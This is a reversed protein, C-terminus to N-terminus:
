RKISGKTDGNWSVFSFFLVFWFLPIVVLKYPFRERKLVGNKILFGLLLGLQKKPEYDQTTRERHTHTHTHPTHANTQIECELIINNCGGARPAVDSRGNQPFRRDTTLRRRQPHLFHRCTEGNAPISSSAVATHLQRTFLM